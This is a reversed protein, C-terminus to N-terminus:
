NTGVPVSVEKREGTASIEYVKMIYNDAIVTEVLYNKQPRPTFVLPAPQPTIGYGFLTHMPIGNLTAIQRKVSASVKLPKEAEVLTDISDTGGAMKKLYGPIRKFYGADYVPEGASSMAYEVANAPGLSYSVPHDGAGGLTRFTLSAHHEDAALPVVPMSSPQVSAQRSGCGTIAFALTVALPVALYTKM